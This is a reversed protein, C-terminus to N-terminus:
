TPQVRNKVFYDAIGQPTWGGDVLPKAADENIYVENITEVDDGSGYTVVRISAVVQNAEAPTARHRDAAALWAYNVFKALRFLFQAEALVEPNISRYSRNYLGAIVAAMLPYVTLTLYCTNYANNAQLPIIGELPDQNYRLAQYCSSLYNDPLQDLADPNLEAGYVLSLNDRALQRLEQEDMPPKPDEKWLKAAPLTPPTDGAAISPLKIWTVHPKILKPVNKTTAPM